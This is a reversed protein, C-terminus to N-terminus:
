LDGKHTAYWAQALQANKKLDGEVHKFRIKEPKFPEVGKLGRSIREIATIAADNVRSWGSADSIFNHRKGDLREYPTSIASRTDDDLMKVIAHIAPKHKLREMALAAKSRVFPHEDELFAMLRKIRAAKEDGSQRAAYGAAASVARGRVAPSKHKLLATVKEDFRAKALLKHPNTTNLVTAVVMDNADSLAAYRADVIDERAEDDKVNFLLELARFRAPAKPHKAAVDILAAVLAEDPNDGRIANGAAEMAGYQVVGEPHALLAKTVKLYDANVVPKSTSGQNSAWAQSMAELARGRLQPELETAAIHVFLEANDAKRVTDSPFTPHGSARERSAEFSAKLAKIAETQAGDPKFSITVAKTPAATAGESARAPEATKAGESANATKAAKAEEGRPENSVGCASGLVGWLMCGVVAKLTATILRTRM